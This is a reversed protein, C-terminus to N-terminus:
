GARSPGSTIARYVATALAPGVSASAAGGGIRISTGLDSGLTSVPRLCRTAVGMRLLEAIRHEVALQLVNHEGPDLDLGDLVLREVHVNVNAATM